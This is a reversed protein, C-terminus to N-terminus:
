ADDSWRSGEDPHNPERLTFGSNLPDAAAAGFCLQYCPCRSPWVCNGGSTHKPFESNWVATATADLGKQELEKLKAAAMHIDVERPLVMQEWETVDSPQRTIPPLQVFQERLLDPDTAALMAVWAKIGGPYNDWVSEKRFGKGLRKGNTEYRAAWEDGGTPSTGSRRWAHALPTNHYWNGSEPPYEQRRGKVLGYIIVGAIPGLSPEAALVETIVQSDHQWEDVWKKGLMSATKFNLIFQSGDSRRRLLADIRGLLRLTHGALTFDKAVERELTVVEYNALLPQLEVAAFARILAEVIARHEDVVRQPDQGEYLTLDVGSAVVALDYVRHAEDVAEQVPKGMLFQELGSHVAGGAELPLYKLIGTLGRGMYEYEWWRKRPCKQLSNVGSRQFFIIDGNKTVL